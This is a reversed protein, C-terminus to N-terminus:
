EACKRCNSEAFMDINWSTRIWVFGYIILPLRRSCGAQCNLKQLMPFIHFYLFAISLCHKFDNSENFNTGSASPAPAFRFYKSEVQRKLQEAYSKRASTRKQHKNQM